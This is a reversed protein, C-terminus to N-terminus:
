SQRLYRLAGLHIAWAMKEQYDPSLLLKTEEPNSLFGCEVIATPCSSKQLMYYNENGKIERQKTQHTDKIIQSQIMQALLKGEASDGHYFVQAGYVAEKPFSNQHISIMLNPKTDEILSIRHDLDAMKKSSSEPSSYVTDDERTMVVTVDQAELLRKLRLAIELNLDKEKVGSDSVKGPDPGGHGPDIVITYNNKNATRVNSGMVPSFTNQSFCLVALCFATCVLCGSFFSTKKM